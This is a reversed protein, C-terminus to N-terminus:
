GHPRVPATPATGPLYHNTLYPDAPRNAGQVLFDLLAAMLLLWVAARIRGIGRETHAWRSIDALPGSGPRPELWADPDASTAGAQEPEPPGSLDPLVTL